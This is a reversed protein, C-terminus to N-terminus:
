NVIIMIINKINMVVNQKIKEKVEEKNDTM